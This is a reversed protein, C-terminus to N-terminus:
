NTNYKEIPYNSGKFEAWEPTLEFEIHQPFLKKQV